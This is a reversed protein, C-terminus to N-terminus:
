FVAAEKCISYGGDGRALADQEDVCIQIKVIDGIATFKFTSINELLLHRNNPTAVPIGEGQWPQYDHYMVLDIDGDGEFDEIRVAYATWALKYHEYVDTGVFTTGLADVLQTVTGSGIDTVPHGATNNQAVAAVGNWGFDNQIDTNASTFFLAADNMTTASGLPRVAQIVIDAQANDTGPSELYTGAGVAAANDVDIFGSWTPRNFAPEGALGARNTGNWGDIDMGIWELITYNSAPNIFSLGRFNGGLVERAITSDKIRYQLRNALQKVALETDFQLRNNDSSSRYSDYVTRLVNVGINALLGIIVIVFVLEIFTFGKRM